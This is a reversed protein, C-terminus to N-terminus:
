GEEGEPDYPQEHQDHQQAPAEVFAVSQQQLGDLAQQTPAERDKSPDPRPAEPETRGAPLGPSADSAPDRRMRDVLLLAVGGAMLLFVYLALTNALDVYGGAQVGATIVLLGLGAVIPYRADLRAWLSYALYVVFLV